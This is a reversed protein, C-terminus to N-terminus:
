LQGLKLNKAKIYETILAPKDRTLMTETIQSGCWTCKPKKATSM